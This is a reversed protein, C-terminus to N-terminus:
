IRLNRVLSQPYSQKGLPFISNISFNKKTKEKEVKTYNQKIKEVESEDTFLAKNTVFKLGNYERPNHSATIIIAGDYKHTKVSFLVTPTPLIDGDIFNIRLDSLTKIIIKKIEPGSERGDRGLLITPNQSFEEKVFKIFAKTYNEVIQRNLSEGWIGRYGSVTLKPEKIM